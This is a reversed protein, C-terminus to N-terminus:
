SRLYLQNKKVGLTRLPVRKSRKALSNGTTIFSDSHQQLSAGGKVDCLKAGNEPGSSVPWLRISGVTDRASSVM